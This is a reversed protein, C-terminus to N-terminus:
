MIQLVLLSMCRSLSTPKKPNRQSKQAGLSLFRRSPLDPLELCKLLFNLKQCLLKIQFQLKDLLLLRPM